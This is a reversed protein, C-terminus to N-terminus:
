VNNSVLRGEIRVHDFVLWMVYPLDFTANGLDSTFYIWYCLIAKPFVFCIPSLKVLVTFSIKGVKEMFQNNEIYMAKVVPDQLGVFVCANRTTRDIICM